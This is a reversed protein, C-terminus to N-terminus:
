SFSVREISETQALERMLREANRPPVVTIEFIFLTNSFIIPADPLAGGSYRVICNVLEIPVLRGNQTDRQFQDALGELSVECNEFRFSGPIIGSQKCTKNGAQERVKVATPLLAQFKYGIFAGTTSWVQPLEPFTNQAHNLQEAVDKIKAADPRTKGIKATNFIAAAADLSAVAAAASSPQSSFSPRSSRRPPM